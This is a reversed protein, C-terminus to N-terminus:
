NLYSGQTSGRDAVSGRTIIKKLFVSYVLAIAFGFYGLPRLVEGLAAGSSFTKEAGVDILRGVYV